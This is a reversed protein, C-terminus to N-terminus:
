RAAEASATSPAASSPAQQPVAASEVVFRRATTMSEECVRGDPRVGAFKVMDASTLLSALMAQHREEIAHSGKAERLFEQTTLEPARIAFRREIYGRVVDTLRVHFEQVRHAKPLGERELADLESLALLDAALPPTRRRRITLLAWTGLLGLGIVGASIATVLPWRSPKPLLDLEGKIDRFTAPDDNEGLVSTVEVSLETTGLRQPLGNADRLEVVIPPITVTGSAFTTLRYRGVLADGVMAPPEMPEVHFDGLDGGLAGAFTELPIARGQRNISITLTLPEGVSCFAPSVKVLMTADGVTTSVSLGVPGDDPRTFAMAMTSPIAVALLVVTLGASAFARPSM